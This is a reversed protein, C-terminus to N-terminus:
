LQIIRDTPLANLIDAAAAFYLNKEPTGDRHSILRTQQGNRTVAMSATVQAVRDEFPGSQCWMDMLAQLAPIDTDHNTTGGILIDEKNGGFLTSARPGAILLNPRGTGGTLINGGNGVLINYVSEMGTPTGSGGIVNHINLIANANGDNVNTASGTQLDVIVTTTYGTYDLTNTGGGGGDITQVKGGPLM